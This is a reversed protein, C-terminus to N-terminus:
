KTSATVTEKRINTLKMERDIEKVIFRKFYYDYFFFM